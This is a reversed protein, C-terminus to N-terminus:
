ASRRVLAKHVDPAKTGRSVNCHSCAAVINKKSNGGGDAVRRLHEATCTVYNLRRNSFPEGFCISFRLRASEKSELTREWMPQGCYFCLGNQRHFAEVRYDRVKVGSM